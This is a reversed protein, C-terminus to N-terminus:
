IQILTILSANPMPTRWALTRTHRTHSKKRKHSIFTEWIEVNASFPNCNCVYYIYMAQRNRNGLVDFFFRPLKYQALITIPLKPTYEVYLLDRHRRNPPGHAFHSSTSRISTARFPYCEARRTVSSRKLGIRYWFSHLHKELAIM